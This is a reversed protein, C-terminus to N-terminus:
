ECSLEACGQRRGTSSVLESQKPAPSRAKCHKKRCTQCTATGSKARFTQPKIGSEKHPSLRSKTEKTKEKSSPKCSPSSPTVLDRIKLTTCFGLRTLSLSLASSTLRPGFKAVHRREQLDARASTFCQLLRRSLLSFPLSVQAHCFDQTYVTTIPLRSSRSLILTVWEDREQVFFDGVGRSRVHGFRLLAYTATRVM